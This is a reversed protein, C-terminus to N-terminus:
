GHSVVGIKKPKFLRKGNKNAKWTVVVEDNYLGISCEGMEQKVNNELSAIETKLDDMQSKLEERRVLRDFSDSSLEIQEEIAEYAGNLYSTTSDHGDLAPPVKALVHNNWFDSELQILYDIIEDDREIEKYVFKNGGILVAIYAFQYDTVCLYHQVQLYYSNPLSDGEWEQKLYESATKCELIGIGRDPCIVERDLNALMYPYTEHQLLEHRERVELGTRKSFQAAVVEELIHGWEAAESTGNDEWEGIKDLYLAFPSKWKSM